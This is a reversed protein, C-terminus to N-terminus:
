EGAMVTFMKDHMEWFKGQDGACLAAEAAKKANAHFSLPFSRYELSIQDGYKALVAEITSFSRNCYPCEFDTYEMIKIKADKNGKIYGTGYSLNKLRKPTEGTSDLKVKDGTGNKLEADIVKEFDAQPLSGVIMIGNIFFSPTGTVGLDQGEKEEKAVKDTYTGDDLCKNFKSANVGFGKAMEKLAKVSIKSETTTPTATTETGTGKGDKMQSVQSSLRGVFFSAVVLLFVLIPAYISNKDKIM